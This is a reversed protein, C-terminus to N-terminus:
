SGTVAHNLPNTRFKQLTFMVNSAQARTVDGSSGNFLTSGDSHLTVTVGSALLFVCWFNEPLDAPVTFTINTDCEITRGMDIPFLRRSDTPASIGGAPAGTNQTSSSSPGSNTFTM